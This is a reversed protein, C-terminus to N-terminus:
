LGRTRRAPTVPELFILSGSKDTVSYKLLESSDDDDYLIWNDVAGDSLHLKNNLIKRMLDLSQELTLGLINGNIVYTMLAARIANREATTLSMADGPVARTSVKVDLDSNLKTQVADIKIENNNVETIIQNKNATANTESTPDIPLNDTKLKIADIEADKTGTTLTRTIFGWIDTILSGFSTLTRSGAGWVASAISSASPLAEVTSKISDIEDDKDTKVSSGMINNNPLKSQTENTDALVNQVDSIIEQIKGGVSTVKLGDVGLSDRIQKKEAETWDSAGGTQWSGAGHAATLILDVAAPILSIALDLNDILAARLATYGQATMASQVDAISLDNLAAIATLVSSISANLNDLLAARGATYGQNTLATQIDAISLDNLASIAKDLNDLKIARAATYGQNTLATQIDAISLDNLASIAALINTETSSISADIKDVFQGVKIEGVQPMNKATTGPFQEVRIEYTDNSTPNTITGTNFSYYYEGPANTSSIETMALRRTTWGANKFTLDNFDFFYGDSIRRISILLDTLGTLPVLSANLALAEIREISGTQIRISSM